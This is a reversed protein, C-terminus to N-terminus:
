APPPQTKDKATKIVVPAQNEVREELEHHRQLEVFHNLSFVGLTLWIPTAASAGLEILPLAMVVCALGIKFDLLNHTRLKIERDFRKCIHVVVRATHSHESLYEAERQIKNALEDLQTPPPASSPEGMRGRLHRQFSEYQRPDYRLVLSGTAPNATVRQIGPIGAFTEGIQQLLEPNGKGAAIKMRVRGATQHEIKMGLKLKKKKKKKGLAGENEADVSGSFPADASTEAELMAALPPTDTNEPAALPQTEADESAALSPTKAEESAAPLPTPNVAQAAQFAQASRDQM